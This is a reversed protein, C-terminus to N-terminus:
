SWIFISISLSPTCSAHNDNNLLKSSYFQFNLFIVWVRKWSVKVLPDGRRTNKKRQTPTTNLTTTHLSVPILKVLTTWFNHCHDTHTYCDILSRLIYSFTNEIINSRISSSDDNTLVFMYVTYLYSRVRVLSCWCTFKMQRVTARTSFCSSPYNTM